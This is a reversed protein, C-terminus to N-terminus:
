VVALSRQYYRRKYQINCEAKRQLIKDARESNIYPPRYFSFQKASEIPYLRAYPLMTKGYNYCKKLMKGITSVEYHYIHYGRLLEYKYGLRTARIHFDM